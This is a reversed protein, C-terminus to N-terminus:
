QKAEKLLFAAEEVLRCSVACARKVMDIDEENDFSVRSAMEQIAASESIREQADHLKDADLTITAAM